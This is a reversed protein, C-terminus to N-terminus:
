SESATLCLSGGGAEEARGALVLQIVADAFVGPRLGTQRLIDDRHVPTFTLCELVLAQAGDLDIDIYQGGQDHETWSPYDPDERAVRIQSRIDTIVDEAHRVATAGDRILNISGVYRPDLPSGPVVFVERGQEAAFRATHLTGSREAAEIIIVADSLGSVLRNRRPFDKATPRAGMARESIIAGQSALQRTLEEHEPPYVVDVGGAVVGITGGELSSRHAEGDIGRALGSIIVFGESSLDHAIKRALTRGVNSANRAGIIAIAPNEFLHTHGRVCIVPPPDPINKLRGPYEPECSAIFRGNHKKIRAMEREIVDRDAIRIPKARGTKSALSPLGSLAKQADGFRELLRYFTIPGIGPSRILQLWDAREKESLSPMLQNRLAM